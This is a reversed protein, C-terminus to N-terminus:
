INMKGTERQSIINTMAWILGPLILVSMVLFRYQFSKLITQSQFTNSGITAVRKLDISGSM